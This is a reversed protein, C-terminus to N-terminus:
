YAQHKICAIAMRICSICTEILAHMNIPKYNHIYLVDSNNHYYYFTCTVPEKAKM